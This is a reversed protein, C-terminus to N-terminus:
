KFGMKWIVDRLRNQWQNLIDPYVEKLTPYIWYGTEKHPYKFRNGQNRGSRDKGTRGGYESGYVLYGAEARIKKGQRKGYARGVKKSGGVTVHILRDRPTKIAKAMLEAQPPGYALTLAALELERKILRSDDQAVDKFKKVVDPGLKRLAKLLEMDEATAYIAVHEGRQRLNAM